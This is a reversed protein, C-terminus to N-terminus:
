NQAWVGDRLGRNSGSSDNSFSSEYVRLQQFKDVFLRQQRSLRGVLGFLLFRMRLVFQVLDLEKEIRAKSKKLLKYRKPKTFRQILSTIYNSPTEFKKDMHSDKILNQMLVKNNDKKFYKEMFNEKRTQGDM